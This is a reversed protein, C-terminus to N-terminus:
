CNEMNKCYFVNLIIKIMMKLRRLVSTVAKVTDALGEGNKLKEVVARNRGFLSFGRYYM